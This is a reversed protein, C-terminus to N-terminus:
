GGRGTPRPPPGIRGRGGDALPPPGIGGGVPPPCIMAFGLGSLGNIDDIGHGKGSVAAFPVFYDRGSPENNPLGENIPDPTIGYGVTAPQAGGWAGSRM